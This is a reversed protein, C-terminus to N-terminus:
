LSPYLAAISNSIATYIQQWHPHAALLALHADQTTTDGRRAPGTQLECPPGSGAREFTQQLLPQLAAAPLNHEACLQECICLLHTIFNNGVVATLHLQRRTSEPGEYLTWFLAEALSRLAQQATPDNSEGFAPISIKPLHRDRISYIPWCVARHPHPALAEIPVTGSFHVLTATTEPLSSVISAIADDSLAVLILDVLGTLAALDGIVPASLTTALTTARSVDRGWVGACRWDTGSLRSALLQAMRGTGLLYYTM